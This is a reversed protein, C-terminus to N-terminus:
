QIPSMLHNCKGAIGSIFLYQTPLMDILAGSESITARSMILSIFYHIKFDYRFAIYFLTPCETILKHLM